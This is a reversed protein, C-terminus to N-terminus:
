TAWETGQRSESTASALIGSDPPSSPSTESSTKSDDGSASRRASSSPSQPPPLVEEEDPEEEVQDSELRITLTGPVDMLVELVRPVDARSIKGARHLAIIAFVAYLEPDAGRFGEQITLPMYGAHRKLWGWERVSFDTAELDFEYRGDYVTGGRITLWDM